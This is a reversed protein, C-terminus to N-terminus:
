PVNGRISDDHAIRAAATGYQREPVCGSQTSQDAHLAHDVQIQLQELAGVSVGDCDIRIASTTDRIGQTAVLKWLVHDALPLDVLCTQQDVGSCGLSAVPAWSLADSGRIDHAAGNWEVDRPHPRRSLALPHDRKGMVVVDVVPM